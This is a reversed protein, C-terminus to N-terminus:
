SSSLEESVTISASGSTGESHRRKSRNGEVMIMQAGIWGEQMGLAVWAKWHCPLTITGDIQGGKDSFTTDSRTSKYKVCKPGKLVTINYQNGDCEVSGIQEGLEVSQRSEHLLEDVFYAATSNQTTGVLRFTGRRHIDVTGTYKVVRNPDGTEWGKGALVDGNGNWTVNFLGGPGNYFTADVTADNDFFHYFGDVIGEDHYPKRSAGADSGSTGNKRPSLDSDDVPAAFATSIALALILTSYPSFM